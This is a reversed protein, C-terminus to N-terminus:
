PTPGPALRQQLPTGFRPVVRVDGFWRELAGAAREVQAQAERGVDELLEYAVEGSRRQTWGGVVRGGVWVTPGANGNRDFLAPGHGGLYWDREKWGMTTPDLAPLLAVWPKPARVRERDDPLVWGAGTDLRVPVAGTAALAAHTQRVTWGTWWRLDNTTAPGFTALWGRALRARADGAEPAGDLTIWDAMPAWRYQSSTWSGRPRGRVVRQATSLLFLVRTTMGVEGGWPKGEGYALKERLGPVERSLQAGTADGLREIAELTEREVTRLWRGGDRTIGNAELM